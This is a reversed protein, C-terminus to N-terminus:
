SVSNSPNRVTTYLVWFWQTQPSQGDDPIRIVLFYLTESVLDKKAKLHPSRSVISDEWFSTVEIVPCTRLGLSEWNEPLTEGLWCVTAINSGPTRIRCETIIRDAGLLLSTSHPRANPNHLNCQIREERRQVTRQTQRWSGATKLRGIPPGWLQDSVTSIFSVLMGTHFKLKLTNVSACLIFYGANNKIHCLRTLLPLDLIKLTYINMVVDRTRIGILGNFKKKLKGLGELRVIARPDVWSGVSILVLFRGQSPPPPPTGARLASFMVEMQWDMTQSIYSGRRGVVRCPRWPMNCPYSEMIKYTILEEHNM